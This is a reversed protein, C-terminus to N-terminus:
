HRFDELKAPRAREGVGAEGLQEGRELFDIGAQAGSRRLHAIEDLGVGLEIGGRALAELAQQVVAVEFPARTSPEPRPPAPTRPAIPESGGPGCLRFEDFTRAAIVCRRQDPTTDRECMATLEKEDALRLDPPMLGLAHRAVEACTVVKAEGSEGSRCGVVSVVVLTLLKM